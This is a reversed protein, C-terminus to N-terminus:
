VAAAEGPIGRSVQRQLNRITVDLTGFLDIGVRINMARGRRCNVIQREATIGVPRVCKNPSLVVGSLFAFRLGEKDFRIVLTTAVRDIKAPLVNSLGSM